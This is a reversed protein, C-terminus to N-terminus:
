WVVLTSSDDSRGKLLKNKMASRGTAHDLYNLAASTFQNKKKESSDM